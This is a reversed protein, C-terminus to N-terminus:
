VPISAYIGDVHKTLRNKADYLCLGSNTRDLAKFLSDHTKMAQYFNPPRLVYRLFGPTTSNGSAVFGLAHNYAQVQQNSARVTAWLAKFALVHFAHHLWVCSGLWPLYTYSQKAKPNMFLGVEAETYQNQFSKIDSLQYLGLASSLAPDYLLFYLSKHQQEKYWQLHKKHSIRAKKRMYRRVNGHNRWALVHVLNKRELRQLCLNLHYLHTYLNSQLEM